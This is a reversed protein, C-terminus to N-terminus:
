LDAPFASASLRLGIEQPSYIAPISLPEPQDTLTAQPRILTLGLTSSISCGLLLVVFLSPSSNQKNALSCVRNRLSARDAMALAGTPLAKKMLLTEAVNCLASVYSKVDTGREIIQADVAFECQNQLKNRLLWVFPNYWHVICNLQAAHSVWLDHRRIHGLEHLLVMRLTTADWESANNPLLVTPQFLGVVAPSAIDGSFRLRPQKKLGAELTSFHLLKQTIKDDIICSQSVWKRLTRSGNLYHTICTLVGLLWIVLSIILWVSQSSVQGASQPAEIWATEIHWKPLALFLPTLFLLLTLGTTLAAARAPNKKGIFVSMSYAIASLILSISIAYM